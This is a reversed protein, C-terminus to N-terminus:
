NNTSTSSANLSASASVSVNISASAEGAAKASALVCTTGSIGIDGLATFTAAGKAALKVAPDKLAITLNVAEAWDKINAEIAQQLKM